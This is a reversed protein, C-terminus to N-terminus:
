PADAGARRLQRDLLALLAAAAVLHAAVFVMPALPAVPAAPDAGAGPPADVRLLDAGLVVLSAAPLAVATLAYALLVLARTAILIMTAHEGLALAIAAAALRFCVAQLLIAAACWALAPWEGGSVAFATLVLPSALALAHASEVAHGATRGALLRAVSPSGGARWARLGRQGPLLLEEAGARVGYWASMFGAALVTALLTDPADGSGLVELLTDKPWWLFLVVAQIVLYNVLDRHARGPTAIGRLSEALVESAGANM